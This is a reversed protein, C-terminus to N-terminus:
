LFLFLMCAIQVLLSFEDVTRKIALRADPNCALSTSIPNVRDRANM